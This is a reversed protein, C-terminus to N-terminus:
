SKLQLLNARRLAPRMAQALLTAIVVAAAANILSTVGKTALQAAVAGWAQGEILSMQVFSKALYLVVYTLSGAVSAAVDRRLTPMGRRAVWGAAFGLCFKTLFTVWSEAIYAPNTFDYLMSGLGSALGGIGPGFLLGALACFGNGLHVAAVEGIQVRAGSFLFVMAALLGTAVMRQLTDHEKKM